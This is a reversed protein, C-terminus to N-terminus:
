QHMLQLTDHAIEATEDTTVVYVKVRSSERSIIAVDSSISAQNLEDDLEIGLYKFNECVRRRVEAAREGVTATFVLADLGGLVASYSGVYSRIRYAMAAIAFEAREDHGRANLLSRLDNSSGSLGLLGSNHNLYELLQHDNFELRKKLELAATVDINGSRSAMVLGELPSFGMSTDVSRWTDLATVSSGSGLHCVVAKDHKSSKPSVECRLTRAVSSVSLGHYGFRYIDYADADATSIAYNRAEHTLTRHFASDSIAYLVVEPLENHLQKVQELVLNIHTSAQEAISNLYEVTEDDFRRHQLFRRGPAVVRVGVGKIDGNEVHNNARCYDLFHHLAFDFDSESVDVEAKGDGTSISMVYGDGLHEYYGSIILKDGYFVAYERSSSGPNVALVTKSSDM